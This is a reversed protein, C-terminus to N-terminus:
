RKGGFIKNSLRSTWSTVRKLEPLIEEEANKIKSKAVAFLEEPAIAVYVAKKARPLKQVIGKDILTELVVYTTPKKLNSRTAISYATAKGLQILAIYVKAEKENLGLNQLAETIQM